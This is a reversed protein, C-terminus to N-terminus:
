TFHRVARMPPGQLIGHLCAQNQEVSLLSLGTRSQISSLLLAMLVAFNFATLGGMVAFILM